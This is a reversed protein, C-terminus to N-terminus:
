VVTSVRNVSVPVVVTLQFAVILAYIAFNCVFEISYYVHLESKTGNSITRGVGYMQAIVACRHFGKKLRKIIELKRNFGLVVRKRKEAM